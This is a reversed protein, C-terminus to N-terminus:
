VIKSANSLELSKHLYANAHELAGQPLWLWWIGLNQQIINRYFLPLRSTEGEFYDRFSRDSILLRKINKFFRIRGYGESSIAGM